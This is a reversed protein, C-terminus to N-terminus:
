YEFLKDTIKTRIDRSAVVKFYSERKVDETAGSVAIAKYANFLAEGQEILGKHVLNVEWMPRRSAWWYQCSYLARDMVARAIDAFQRANDNDAVEGATATIELCLETHQWQLDHIDNGPAKWLPYPVGAGLEDSSTSWSSPRAEVREGQRFHDFLDSVTASRIEGDMETLTFLAREQRALVQAQQLARHSEKRPALEDYVEALFLQEWNEIHHGYTEADMATVVYADDRGSTLRKLHELFGPADIAHFSIQNSLVDDRFFVGLTGGDGHVQHVVDMPWDVPCAVGSVVVWEHGTRSVPGVVDRSYAMEPPFFGRPRYADGLFYRSAKQNLLIQREAEEEPVLPLIAHYMASGVFEIQGREALGRLGDIVDDHGHDHLSELLAGQINVTARANPHARFVEILPRTPSM